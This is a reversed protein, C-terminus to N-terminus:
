RDSVYSFRMDCTHRTMYVGNTSESGKVAANALMISNGQGAPTSSGYILSLRGYETTVARFRCLIAKFLASKLNLNRGRPSIVTKMRVVIYRGFEDLSSATDEVDTATTSARILEDYDNNHVFEKLFRGM